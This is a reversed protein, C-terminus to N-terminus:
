AAIVPHESGVMRVATIIAAKTAASLAQADYMAQQCTMGAQRAGWFGFMLRLPVRDPVRLEEADHLRKLRREYTEAEEDPAAGRSSSNM